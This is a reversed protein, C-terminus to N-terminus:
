HRERERQRERERGEQLARRRGASANLLTLSTQHVADEEQGLGAERPPEGDRGENGSECKNTRM